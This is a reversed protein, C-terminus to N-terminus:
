KCLERFNCYNCIAQNNTKYFSERDKPINEEINLCYEYMEETQARVCSSFKQIDYENIKCEKEYYEPKLYAIIPIINTPDMGYHYSAWTSYGLLQFNHKEEQPKGTKWDIIFIKDDLPFLFDVKCYAKRGEIITEGYGPPEILWEKKNNVAKETLWIFRDSDIFNVLCKSVSDFISNIDIDKIENYYVESFTKAQCYSETKRQTFDLFRGRDIKGENKLLRELLSKIVDHVINGIELPISTMDKLRNIHSYDYEQDYKGYYNFYYQHKCKQFLDYRSVSWGLMPTYNFQKLKEM